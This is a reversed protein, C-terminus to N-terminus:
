RFTQVLLRPTVTLDDVDPDCPYAAMTTTFSYNTSQQVEIYFTVDVTEVTGADIRPISWTWRRNETDFRITGVSPTGRHFYLRNFAPFDGTVTVDFADAPGDNLARITYTLTDPWVPNTVTLDRSPSSPDANLWDADLSLDAGPNETVLLRLTDRRTISQAPDILRLIATQEGVEAPLFRHRPTAGSYVASGVTWRFVFRDYSDTIPDFGCTEAIIGLQVPRCAQVETIPLEDVLGYVAVSLSDVDVRVQMSRSAREGRDDEATVTVTYLGPTEYEHYAISTGNSITAGDGFDWSMKLWNNGGTPESLPKGGSADARFDVRLPVVGCTTSAHLRSITPEPEDDSCGVAVLAALAALALSAVLKRM